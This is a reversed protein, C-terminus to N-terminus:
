ASKRTELFTARLTPEWNAREDQWWASHVWDLQRFYPCGRIYDARSKLTRDGGTIAITQRITDLMAAVDGMAARGIDLVAEIDPNPVTKGGADIVTQPIQNRHMGWHIIACRGAKDRYDALIVDLEIAMGQFEPSLNRISAFPKVLKERRYFSQVESAIRARQWDTLGDPGVAPSSTEARSM